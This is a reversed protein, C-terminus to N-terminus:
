QSRKRLGDRSHRSQVVGDHRHNGVGVEVAAVHGPGAEVGVSLRAALRPVPAVEVPPLGGEEAGVARNEVLGEHHAVPPVVRVALRRGVEVGQVLAHVGLQQQGRGGLLVAGEGCLHEVGEEHSQVEVCFIDAFCCSIDLMSM